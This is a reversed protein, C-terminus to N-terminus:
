NSVFSSLFITQRTCLLAHPSPFDLRFSYTLIQVFNLDPSLQQIYNFLLKQFEFRHTPIVELSDFTVKFGLNWIHQITIHKSTPVQFGLGMRM